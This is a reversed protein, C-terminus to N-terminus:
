RAALMGLITTLLGVHLDEIANNGNPSFIRYRFQMETELELRRLRSTVGNCIAASLGRWNGIRNYPVLSAQVNSSRERVDVAVTELRLGSGRCSCHRLESDGRRMSRCFPTL